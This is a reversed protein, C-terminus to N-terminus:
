IYSRSRSQAGQPVNPHMHDSRMVSPPRVKGPYWRVVTTKGYFLRFLQDTSLVHWYLYRLHEKRDEEEFTKGPVVDVQDIRRTKVYHCSKLHFKWSLEYDHNNTATWAMLSATHGDMETDTPCDLWAPIAELVKLYMGQAVPDGTGRVDNLGYYLANYYMVYMGPDINVYPSNIIDPLLRLLELDINSAFVDPVIMNKLVEIFSEVCERAEEPTLNLDVKCADTRIRLKGL